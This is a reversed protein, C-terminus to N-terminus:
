RRAILCNLRQSNRSQRAPSSGRANMEMSFSGNVFNYAFRVGWLIAYWTTLIVLSVVVAHIVLRRIPRRNCNRLDSATPLPCPDPSGAEILVNQILEITRNTLPEGLSEAASAAGHRLLASVEQWSPADLDTRFGHLQTQLEFSLGLRDNTRSGLQIHRQKRGLVSAAQIKASESLEVGMGDIDKKLGTPKQTQPREADCILFMDATPFQSDKLSLLVKIGLNDFVGGDKLVFRGKFEDYNLGIDKHEVVLERFVPPFCSSVAVALPLKIGASSIVELHPEGKGYEKPFRFVGKSSLAVKEHAVVDTAVFAWFPEDDASLRGLTVEGFHRRYVVELYSTRSHSRSFWWSYLRSYLWRVLVSDRINSRCVKILDAAVKIFSERLKEKIM